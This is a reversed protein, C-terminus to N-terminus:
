EQDLHRRFGFGLNTFTKKIQRIEELAWRPGQGVGRCWSKGEDDIFDVNWTEQEADYHNWPFVNCLDTRCSGYIACFRSFHFVCGNRHDAPNNTKFAIIYADLRADYVEQLYRIAFSWESLRLYKALERMNSESPQILGKHSCCIGCHVCEFRREKLARQKAETM